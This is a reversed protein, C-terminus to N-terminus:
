GHRSAEIIKFRDYAEQVILELEYIQHRREAKAMEKLQDRTKFTASVMTPRTKKTTEM